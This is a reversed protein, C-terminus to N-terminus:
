SPLLKPPARRLRPPAHGPLSAHSYPPLSPASTPLSSCLPPHHRHPCAILPCPLAPWPRARPACGWRRPPPTQPAPARQQTTSVRQAHPHPPPPLLPSCCRAHGLTAQAGYPLCSGSALSRPAPSGRATSPPAGRPRGTVLRTGPRQLHRRHLHLHRWGRGDRHLAGALHTHSPIPPRPRLRGM